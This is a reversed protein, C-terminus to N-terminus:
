VATGQVGRISDLISNVTPFRLTFSIGDFLDRTVPDNLSMGAPFSLNLIVRRNNEDKPRKLLPSCHLTEYDIADYPSLIAGLRIGKDLYQNIAAPFQLASHHTSIETNYSLNLDVTYLPFDYTLYQILFEDHYDRLHHRWAAVNLDSQVPFRAFKYNPVGSDQIARAMNIYTQIDNCEHIQREPGIFTFNAIEHNLFGRTKTHDNFDLTIIM